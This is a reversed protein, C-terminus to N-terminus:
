RSSDVGSGSGRGSSTSSRSAFQGQGTSAVQSSEEPQDGAGFVGSVPSATLSEGQWGGAVSTAAAGVWVPEATEVKGEGLSPPEPPTTRLGARAEARLGHPRDHKSGESADAAM